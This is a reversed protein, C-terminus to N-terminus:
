TEATESARGTETGILQAIGLKIDHWREVPLLLHAFSATHLRVYEDDAALATALDEFGPNHGILLASGASDPLRRIVTLLTPVDAGYLAPEIAIPTSWGLVGAVIEATQQARRASSSVIADLTLELEAILQATVEADRRGSATLPRERDGGPAWREAEAHRLLILRRM